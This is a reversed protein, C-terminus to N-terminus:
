EGKTMSGWLRSSVGVNGIVRQEKKLMRQIRNVKDKVGTVLMWLFVGDKEDGYFLGAWSWFAM